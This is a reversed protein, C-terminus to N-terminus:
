LVDGRAKRRAAVYIRLFVAMPVATNFTVCNGSVGVIGVLLRAMHFYTDFRMMDATYATVPPLANFLVMFAEAEAGHSYVPKHHHRDLKREYSAFPICGQLVITAQPKAPAPRTISSLCMLSLAAFVCLLAARYFRSM